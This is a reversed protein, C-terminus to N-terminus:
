TYIYIGLYLNYSKIVKKILSWCKFVLKKSRDGTKNQGIPKKEIIFIYSIIKYLVRCDEIFFINERKSPLSQLRGNM